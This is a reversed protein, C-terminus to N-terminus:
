RNGELEMLVDAATSGLVAVIHRLEVIDLRREGSEYKSVFSQPVGLREAVQVQTLGAERRLRRLVACLRQYEGSYISKEVLLACGPVQCYGLIPYATFPGSVDTAACSWPTGGPALGLLHSM